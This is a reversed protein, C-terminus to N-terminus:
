RSAAAAGNLLKELVIICFVCEAILLGAGISGILVKRVGRRRLLLSLQALVQRVSLYLVFMTEAFTRREEYNDSGEDTVDDDILDKTRQRVTKVDEEYTM